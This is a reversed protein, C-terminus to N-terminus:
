SLFSVKETAKKFLEVKAFSVNVSFKCLVCVVAQPSRNANIIRSNALSGNSYTAVENTAALRVTTSYLGLDEVFWTTSGNSDTDNEPNSVSIRDGIDYPDINPEAPYILYARYCLFPHFCLVLCLTKRYKRRVLIFLLGEFYKSSANGIM